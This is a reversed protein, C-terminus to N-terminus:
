APHNVGPIEIEPKEKLFVRGKPTVHISPRFGHEQAIYNEAILHDIMAMLSKISHQSLLGYTSLSRYDKISVDDSGALIKAVKERGLKENVRLVCSLIKLAVITASESSESPLPRISPVARVAPPPAAASVAKAAGRPYKHPNCRSCNECNRSRNWEGFYSLIFSRYCHKRFRSAYNLMVGFKKYEFERRTELDEFNIGRLATDNRKLIRVGRGSEMNVRELYGFRQLLAISAHFRHDKTGSLKRWSEGVIAAEGSRCLREFVYKLIEAPPHSSDIFFEPIWKDAYNFLLLCRAPEGDRGARGIEQYYAEVSDPIDAHVVFRVESRDIGMGFANTAVIVCEPATMFREQVKKREPAPLGAHYAAAEVGARRLSLYIDDVNKRTGAYVIGLPAWRALEVIARIKEANTAVERVELYLNPRDFGSVIQEADEIGLQTVIDRRVAPTATATLALIPPSKLDRVANRLRLYDPRFDHGWLSVCHAEDVAFLSVKTRSLGARFDENQFREPAVYLLKIRGAIAQEIRSRQQERSVTSNIVTAPLDLQNLQDVQDKMLAILPSVVLTLGPLALAPLQYCLSKGSGTPMVALASQGIMVKDIVHKQAPRFERFGFREHLLVSLDM